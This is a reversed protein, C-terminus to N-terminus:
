ADAEIAPNAKEHWYMEKAYKLAIPIPPVVLLFQFLLIAKEAEGKKSLIFSGIAASFWIISLVAGFLLGSALLYGIGTLRRLVNKPVLISIWLCFIAYTGFIVILGWFIQTVREIEGGALMIVLAFPLLVLTPSALVVDFIKRM